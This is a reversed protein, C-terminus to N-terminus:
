SSLVAKLLCLESCEGSPNSASSREIMGLNEDKKQSPEDTKM